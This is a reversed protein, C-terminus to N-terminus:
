FSITTNMSPIPSCTIKNPNPNLWSGWWGFSSNTIINHKCAAMLQMDRWSDKQQNWDVFVIKDKFSDLGIKKTHQKAWSSTDEDCFVFFVPNQVQSKIHKTARQFYGNVYIHYNVSLMDGRRVHVAVSQTEQIQKLVQSNLKDKIPPFVFAERIENEILEIGSNKYKFLLKQGTFIDEDTQIFLRPKLDPYSTPIAKRKENLYKLWAYVKNLKYAKVKNTKNKVGSLEFNGRKNEVKIGINNFAQTFYVPYNWNKEWFHSNKIETILQNWNKSNIISHINPTHLNFVKDLEYGNWQCIVDNCEPIDYIITEIYCDDQPNMKKIALYECYSLMQNGLGSEIHIIKM